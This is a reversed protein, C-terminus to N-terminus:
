QVIEIKDKGKLTIIAKKYARRVLSRRNRGKYPVSVINVSKPSVWYIEKIAVKVDNKNCDKHVKFFYKNMSENQKFAKETIIPKLIWQIELGL